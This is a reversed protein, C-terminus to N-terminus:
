ANALGGIQIVNRLKRIWGGVVERVAENRENNAISSTEIITEILPKSNFQQQDQNKHDLM